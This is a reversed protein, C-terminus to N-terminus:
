GKEVVSRRSRSGQLEILRPRADQNRQEVLNPGVRRLFGGQGRTSGSSGKASGLSEKAALDGGASGRLQRLDKGLDDVAAENRIQAQVFGQTLGSAGRLRLVKGPEGRRERCDLT